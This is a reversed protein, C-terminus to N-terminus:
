TSGTRSCFLFELAMNGFCVEGLHLHSTPGGGVLRCIRPCNLRPKIIVRKRFSIKMISWTKITTTFNHISNSIPENNHLGKFKYKHYWSWDMQQMSGVSPWCAVSSFYLKSRKCAVLVSCECTRLNAKWPTEEESIKKQDLRALSPSPHNSLLKIIKIIINLYINEGPLLPAAGPKGEAEVVIRLQWQHSERCGTSIRFSRIWM